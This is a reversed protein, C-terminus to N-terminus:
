GGRRKRIVFILLLGSAGMVGLVVGVINARKSFNMNFVAKPNSNRSVEPETIIVSNNEAGNKLRLGGDNIAYVNTTAMSIASTTALSVKEPREPRRESKLEEDYEDTGDNNDKEVGVDEGINAPAVDSIESSEVMDFDGLDGDEDMWAFALNYDDAFDIDRIEFEGLGADIYGLDINNFRLLLHKAKAPAQWKLKLVDGVRWVIVDPAEIEAGNGDDVLQPSISAVSNLSFPRINSPEYKELFKDALYDIAREIQGSSAYILHGSNKLPNKSSGCIYDERNCWLSYKGAHVGAEYPDRAGLSGKFTRCNPVYTRYQSLKGGNCAEAFLGEGEPLYTNPDGLLLVFKLDDASFANAADAVVAAGQSYGALAFKMDPCEAHRFQYHRKLNAIGNSVSNGYAYSKGASVFAGVLRVPNDMAVAPYDLDTSLVSIMYDQTIKEGAKRVAAFEETEFRKGGSGRAFIIELDTCPAVHLGELGDDQLALCPLFNGINLSFITLFILIKKM